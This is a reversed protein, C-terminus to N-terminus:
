VRRPPSRHVAVVIGARGIPHSLQFTLDGDKLGLIVPKPLLRDFGFLNPDTLVPGDHGPMADHSSAGHRRHSRRSGLASASSTMSVM